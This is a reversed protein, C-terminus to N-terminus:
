SINQQLQRVFTTEQTSLSQAINQMVSLIQQYVSTIFQLNSQTPTAVTSATQNITSLDQQIQGVTTQQAQTANPGFIQGWTTDALSADAGGTVLQGIDTTAGGTLASAIGSIASLISNGDTSDILPAVAVSNGNVTVNGPNEALLVNTRLSDLYQIFNAIDTSSANAGENFVNTASSGYNRIDSDINLNGSLQNINGETQGLLAPWLTYLVYNMALQPDKMGKLTAIMGQLTAQEELYTTVTTLQNNFDTSFQQDLVSPDTSTSM